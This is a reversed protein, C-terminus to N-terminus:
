VEAIMMAVPGKALKDTYEPRKMGEPSGPHPMVYNGPPINFKRLAEMVADESPLKKFDTRHYPLVMHIIFSALFVVVASLLIPLWLAPISVM